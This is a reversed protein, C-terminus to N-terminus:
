NNGVLRQYLPVAVKMYGKEPDPNLAFCKQIAELAEQQRNLIYCSQAIQFYLYDDYSGEGLASRLLELNREQKRLMEEPPLDYGHHEVMAPLKYSYLVVVENPNRKRPTVQEHIRFTYEFFNRNYFRPVEDIQYTQEGNPQTHLNKIKMMGVHRTHKQMCIRVAQADFEQLYEDCDVVLIWNNSAQSAAYNRAASFDKTWEFDYVKDTYQRAIAKTGDTSGTDIVVIEMGYPKLHQLCQGIHKEENKAIICVSIPLGTM